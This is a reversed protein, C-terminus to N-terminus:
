KLPLINMRLPIHQCLLVKTDFNGPPLLTLDTKPESQYQEHISRDTYSALSDAAKFKGPPSTTRDELMLRPVILVQGSAHITHEVLRLARRVPREIGEFASGRGWSTACEDV